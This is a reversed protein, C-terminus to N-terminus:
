RGQVEDLVFFTATQFGRTLQNIGRGWERPVETDTGSPSGGFSGSPSRPAAGPATDDPDSDCITVLARVM